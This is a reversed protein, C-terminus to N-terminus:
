RVRRRRGSTWSTSGIQWPSWSSSAALCSGREPSPCPPRRCRGRSAPGPPYFLCSGPIPPADFITLINPHSLAALAKAEREFRLLASADRSPRAPLVKIAVRRDLRDDFAQYVEGMGGEALKKEVRYPGLIEGVAIAPGPLRPEGDLFGDSDSASLFAELERRLVPDDGCRSDLFATRQDAPLELAEALLDKAARWEEPTL